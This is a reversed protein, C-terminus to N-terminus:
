HKESAEHEQHKFFEVVSKAEDPTLGQKPMQLMYTGLLTKATPDQKTMLDPHLIQSEIWRATRRKTVGALDPGTVRKGFAHCASCGKTQFLKEGAAVGAPDIAGEAARPGQDLDAPVTEGGSAGAGANSAVPTNSATSTTTADQAKGCGGAAVAVLLAFACTFRIVNM